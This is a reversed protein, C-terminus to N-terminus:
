VEKKAKRAQVRRELWLTAALCWDSAAVQRAAALAADLDNAKYLQLAEWMPVAVTRWWATQYHAPDSPYDFFFRQLDYQWAGPVEEPGLMPLAQVSPSGSYPDHYTVGNELLRAAPPNDPYIHLSDIIQTYVGVRVGLLM